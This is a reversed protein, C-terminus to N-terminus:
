RGAAAEDPALEAKNQERVRLHEALLRRAGIRPEPPGEGRECVESDPIVDDVLIVADALQEAELRLRDGVDRAVIEEEREPSVVPEVHRVLLEALERAVDAGVCLCRGERFEAALGPLIELSAGTLRYALEGALQDREVGLALAGFADCEIQRVLPQFPEFRRERVALGVVLRARDLRDLLVELGAPRHVPEDAAVDAEPLRLHGHAGGKRDGDVALLHEHQARRRDEGLLM